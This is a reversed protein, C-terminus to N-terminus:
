LLRKLLHRRSPGPRARAVPANADPEADVARSLEDRAEATEGAQHHLAGLSLHCRAQLPAMGLRALALARASREFALASEPPDRRAAIEALAHLARVEDGRGGHRRSLELAASACREAEELLGADRHVASTWVLVM